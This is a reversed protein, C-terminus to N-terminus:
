NASASVTNFHNNFHEKMAQLRGEVKGKNSTSSGAYQAYDSEKDDVYTSLEQTWLYFEEPNIDNMAESAVAILMPANIKKLEAGSEWGNYVENLYAITSKVKNLFEESKTVITEMYDSVDKANYKGQIYDDDMLMIGLELVLEEESKKRQNETLKIKNQAFESKALDRIFVTADVGMKSIAKQQTSLPTGNNLYHFMEFIEDDTIDIFYIMKLEYEDIADRLVEPLEVFEHQAIEYEKGEVKIPPTDKHLDFKGNIYDHLVTLRQKGDIISYVFKDDKRDGVSYISPVDYGILISRILLSKQLDKWQNSPRQVTHDFSLENNNIMKMFRKVTGDANHRKPM